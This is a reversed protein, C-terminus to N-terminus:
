PVTSARSPKVCRGTAGTRAETGRTKQLINTWKWLVDEDDPITYVRKIYNSSYIPQKVNQKCCKGTCILAGNVDYGLCVSEGEGFEKNCISCKQYYQAKSFLQQLIDMQDNNQM